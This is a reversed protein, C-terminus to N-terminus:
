HIDKEPYNQGRVQIYYEVEKPKFLNKLYDLAKETDFEKCSYVDITVFGRKPFTHVSIHSEQIVVFGTWGGPDKKDNGQAHIVYPHTLIKMGLQSPLENLFTYSPKFDDLIDHPCGYADVMLHLGFSESKKKKKM